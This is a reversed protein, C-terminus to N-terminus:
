SAFYNGRVEIINNYPTTTSHHEVGARHFKGKRHAPAADRRLVCVSSALWSFVGWFCLGCRVDFRARLEEEGVEKAPENKLYWFTGVGRQSM